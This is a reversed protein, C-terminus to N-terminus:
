QAGGHRFCHMTYSEPKHLGAAGAMEKIMKDVAQRKVKTNPHVTLKAFNVTPFIFNDDELPHCLLHHEYFEEWQVLHHFLDIAPKTPQQYINYVHGRMWVVFGLTSLASYYLYRGQQALLASDILHPSPHNAQIYQHIADMDEFMMAQSHKCDPQDECKHVANLMGKVRDSQGLNGCFTKTCDDYHWEGKFIFGFPMEWILCGYTPSSELTASIGYFMTMAITTCETPWGKFCTPFRAGMVTSEFDATPSKETGEEPMGEESGEVDPVDAEADDNAWQELDEDDEIDNEPGLDSASTAAKSQHSRFEKAKKAEAAAVQRVWAVFQNWYISYKKLITPAKAYKKTAEYVGHQADTFSPILKEQVHKKGHGGHDPTSAMGNCGCFAAAVAPESDAIRIRLRCFTDTAPSGVTDLNCDFQLIHPDM